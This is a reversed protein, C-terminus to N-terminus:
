LKIPKAEAAKIIKQIRKQGPVKAVFSKVITIIMATNYALTNTVGAM